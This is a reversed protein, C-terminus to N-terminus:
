GEHVGCIVSVAINGTPEAVKACRSSSVYIHREEFCRVDSLMDCELEAHLSVVSQIMGVQGSWTGAKAPLGTSGLLGQLSPPSLVLVLKPMIVLPAVVM